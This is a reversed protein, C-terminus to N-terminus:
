RPAEGMRNWFTLQPPEVLLEEVRAAFATLHPRALHDELHQRSTWTEHFMFHGPEGAAVHLDYNICGPEMRTVPILALLVESVIAEKGPRAKVTAIVTLPSM